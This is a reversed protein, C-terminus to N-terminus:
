PCFIGFITWVTISPAGSGMSFGGFGLHDRSDMLDEQSTSEVYTSYASEVAPLLDNLLENHYDRNLDLALGFSASDQSSTNNYENRILVKFVGQPFHANPV